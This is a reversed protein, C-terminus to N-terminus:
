NNLANGQSNESAEPVKTPTPDASANGTDTGTTTDTTTGTTTDTSTTPTSPTSGGAAPAAPTSAGVNSTGSANSGGFWGGIVDKAKNYWDVGKELYGKADKGGAGCADLGAKVKDMWTANSGLASVAGSAASVYAAGQAYGAVAGKGAATLAGFFANDDTAGAKGSAVLSEGMKTMAGAVAMLLKGITGLVAGAGFLWTTAAGVAILLIGVTNLIKGVSQLSEGTEIMAKQMEAKASATEGISAKVGAGQKVAADHSTASTQTQQNAAATKTKAERIKTNADEIKKKYYNWSKGKLLSGIGLCFSKIGSVKVEQIDQVKQNADTSQTKANNVTASTDNVAGGTEAWATVEFLIPNFVLLAM